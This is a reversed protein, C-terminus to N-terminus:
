LIRYVTVHVEDKVDLDEIDNEYVVTLKKTSNIAAVLEGVFDKLLINGLLRQSVRPYYTSKM